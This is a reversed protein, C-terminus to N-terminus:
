GLVLENPLETTTRSRECAYFVKVCRKEARRTEKGHSNIQLEVDEILPWCFLFM